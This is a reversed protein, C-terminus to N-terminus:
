KDSGVVDDVSKSTEIQNIQDSVINQRDLNNNFQSVTVQEREKTFFNILIDPNESKTFGKTTLTQDM